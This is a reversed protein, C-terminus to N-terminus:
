PRRSSLVVEDGVVRSQLPLLATLRRLTQAQTGLVIVGTFQLKAARADAVRIPRPFQRNLDAVVRALPQDIYLLRGERWALAAGPDQHLTQISGGEHHSAASGQALRIAQGQTTLQVVGRSVSLQTDGGYHRIDFATGLVRVQGDGVTIVFPRSADHVVDFAAEAEEMHVRREGPVYAVTLRSGANLDIRTGDPLRVIRREGIGTAYTTSAPAAPVSVTRLSQAVFACVCAAAALGVGWWKADGISRRAARAFPRGAASIPQVAADLELWIAQAQDFAARRADGEGGADLWTQFALWDAEVVSDGSLRTVWEAAQDRLAPSGHDAQGMM